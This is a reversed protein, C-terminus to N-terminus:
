SLLMVTQDMTSSVLTSFVQM